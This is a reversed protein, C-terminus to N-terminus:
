NSNIDSFYKSYVTFLESGMRRMNGYLHAQICEQIHDIDHNEITDIISQHENIIEAIGNKTTLGLIKFRIYDSKDTTFREFIYMKRMAKFWIKHINYDLEMFINLDVNDGEAYKKLKEHAYKIEQLDAPTGTKIFDRLIASEVTSRLYIMQNIIDYNLLTVMAGRYPRIEILSTDRLRQLVTRIPTRSVSFRACLMNENLIEGPKIKLTMIENELIDYIQECSLTEM